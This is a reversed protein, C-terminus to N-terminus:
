RAPEPPQLATTELEAELEARKRRLTRMEEPNEHYYALAAYIEALSRDLQDAVDAPSDGGGVVLEYIDLVGVRTGEIRPEGGLVDDTQVIGTM